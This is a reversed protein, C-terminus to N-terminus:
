FFFQELIIKGNKVEYLAVEDLKVRSKGKLKVDMGMTCVFYRSAVEPKGTYGGYMEEVQGQWDIAKQRIKDLGNVDQWISDAPEVSRAKEDYLEDLIMDFKGEQSLEHFRNAVEQTTMTKEITEM